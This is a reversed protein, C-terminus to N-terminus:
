RTDPTYKRLIDWHRFASPMAAGTTRGCTTTSATTSTTSSWTRSSPRRHRFCNRPASRHPRGDHRRCGAADAGQHQEQAGPQMKIDLYGANNATARITDDAGTRGRRRRARLQAAPALGGQHQAHRARARRRLRPLRAAGLGQGRQAQRRRRRHPHRGPERRRQRLAFHRRHRDVQQRRRPEGKAGGATGEPPGDAQRLRVKRPRRAARAHLRARHAQMLWDLPIEKTSRSCRDIGKFYLGFARDFKDFHAEDKVLTLRAVPLLVRRALARHRRKQMAELLILYEKIPSRSSARRAAHFFFDILM